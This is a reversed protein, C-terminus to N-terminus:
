APAAHANAEDASRQGRAVDVRSLLLGGVVFFVVLTLIAPRSSGTASLVLGFVTSGLAGGFRDFVGFFGFMEGAKHRPILTSFLSRSLGQAGGQVTGVLFGLVFFQLTSRLFFCYVTIGAYVALAVFISAKAGIREALIGFAFAFPVGVFQVMLIAAILAQNSIGIERGYPAAMRIITNIADNYILFALLLFLADKHHRLDQITERLRSIAITALSEEPNEGTELRRPPERVTL